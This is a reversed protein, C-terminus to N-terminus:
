QGNNSTRENFVVREFKFDDGLFQRQFRRGRTSINVYANPHVTEYVEDDSNWKVIEFSPCEGKIWPHYLLATNDDKDEHITIANIIEGFELLGFPETVRYRVERFKM